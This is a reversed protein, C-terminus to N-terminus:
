RARGVSPRGRCGRPRRPPWRLAGTILAARSPRVSRGVAGGGATATASRTSVSGASAAAPTASSRRAASSRWLRAWWRLVPAPCGAPSIERDPSRRTSRMREDPQPPGRLRRDRASRARPRRGGAEWAGARPAGGVPGPVSETTPVDWGSDGSDMPGSRRLSGWLLVSKQAQWVWCKRSATSRPWATALSRRKKGWSRGSM